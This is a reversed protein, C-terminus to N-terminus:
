QESTTDANDAGEKPEYIFKREVEVVAGHLPPPYGYVEAYFVEEEDPPAYDLTVVEQCGVYDHWYTGVIGNAKLYAKFAFDNKELLSVYQAIRFRFGDKRMLDYTIERTGGDTKVSMVTSTYVGPQKFSNHPADPAPSIANNFRIRKRSIKKVRM